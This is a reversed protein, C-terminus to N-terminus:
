TAEGRGERAADDLLMQAAKEAIMITPANTNGSVLTPMVSADVVRLGRVGRVRLQPDVVSGADGGMRCTGVPHYVTVANRRVWALLADDGLADPGPEVEERIVGALAPQAAMQRVLRVGSLTRRVDDADSLFHGVIAPAVDMTAAKAMVSGRSKPRLVCVSAQFGSDPHPPKGMGDSTFEIFHLQLDCRAEDPASRCFAGARIPPRAFRGRRALLYKAGELAIRMKDHYLDNLSWPKTIAYRLRAQLHDQLHRGVDPADHVVPVGLAHLHAGPGVGSCQLLQPSHIAGACVIVERSANVQVAKDGRRVVVGCARPLPDGPRADAWVIRQASADTWVELRGSRRAPALFARATSFRHGDAATHQYYGVGEQERGNFDDSHHWGLQVGAEILADCLAGDPPPSDVSLPGGRHHLPGEPLARNGESRLFYPLVDAWSWGSCGAAAWDDYDQAQGRIYIMGNVASTGGLVRGRPCPVRRGNLAPEPETPLRWEIRTDRLAIQLGLPLHIWPSRDRPGAELLLVRHHADALRRALVCGASGAGILVYDYTAATMNTHM